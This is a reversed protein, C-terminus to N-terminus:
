ALSKLKLQVVDQESGPQIKTFYEFSKDVRGFRCTSDKHMYCLYLPLLLNIKIVGAAHFSIKIRKINKTFINENMQARKIPDLINEMSLDISNM